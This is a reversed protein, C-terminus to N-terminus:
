DASRLKRLPRARLRPRDIDDSILEAKRLFHFAATRAAEFSSCYLTRTADAGVIPGLIVARMKGPRDTAPGITVKHGCVTRFRRDEMASDAAAARAKTARNGSAGGNEHYM